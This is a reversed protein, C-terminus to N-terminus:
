RSTDLFRQSKLQERNQKEAWQVRNVFFQLVGSNLTPTHRDTDESLPVGQM